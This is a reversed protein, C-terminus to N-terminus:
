SAILTFPVAFTEALYIETAGLLDLIQGDARRAQLGPQVIFIEFKPTLVRSRRRLEDLKQLDGKEFRSVSYLNHRRQERLKLRDFLQKSRSRWYVSKQAQGCVEYFDGVRAGADSSKSYKCHFLHVHLQDGVAKLAVIDSIEGKGDDDFIIDYDMKWGGILQNIVHRQISTVQKELRPPNKIKKYQSETSLDVGTWNWSVIKSIDYPEREIKPQFLENFEMISTDEFRIIPSEDQFWESLSARKSSTSLFATSKSIPLFDINKGKFVIEYDAFEEDISIRFRIPETDNFTTIDLQSEYFPVSKKNVEVYIAEDNRVLFYPPWDIMLPVLSPRTQIEEPIIAHELIKDTSITEDLLKGGIHHCWDVWESIDDAIMHSWIRGKHSAGITVSEGNEYGRSFLNSKKRGSISARSLGEKIDTGVHMTFQTARSILHLLGLNSLILRNIGYLSRYVHEGRIITSDDNTIKKAIEAYNGNNNTSNIFLLKKEQDWHILYLDHILDFVSKTDGWTVQTNDKTIFLLVRESPNLTPEVLLNEKKLLDWIANPKWDDCTTKYAVLSMKPHINQLPVGVPKNQFGQIFESQRQQLSTAGESLRRLVINWDSDKSYLDELAEEVEADAANAIVTASGIGEASRTFRGIFQITVALSKHIDHLVAIKLQPLDFGEGLMDVCVIIRSQRSRLKEIANTQENSPLNSHVILPNFGPALASYISYIQKAREINDARAMLLHDHGAKIDEELTQVGRKAIVQDAIDRNYEWISIFTIPTFYKEEQAKRLPYTFISKGGLHKGDRRFPTATFQLVPKNQEHFFERFSNWTNASVHHAEDIFVHSCETAIAKQVEESCGGVVAMTAIAVNCCQLFQIADDPNNFQHEVKGVVPLEAEKSIVGFKRLVGFTLFKKAIQDRLASTPVVVFLCKPRERALLALMTETKGTGTPMVVTGIESTVIWHALSAYLAGLQPARMGPKIIDEGNREETIFMFANAWSERAKHSISILEEIDTITRVKPYLWRAIQAGDNEVYPFKSIGPVLLVSGFPNVSTPKPVVLIRDGSKRHIVWGKVGRFKYGEIGVDESSDLCELQAIANQAIKSTFKFRSPLFINETFLMMQNVGKFM